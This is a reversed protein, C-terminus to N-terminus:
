IFILLFLAPIMQEAEQAKITCNHSFPKLKYLEVEDIWAKFNMMKGFKQQPSYIIASPRKQQRKARSSAQPQQSVEKTHDQNLSSWCNLPNERDAREGIVRSWDNEKINTQSDKSKMRDRSPPRQFEIAQEVHQQGARNELLQITKTHQEQSKGNFEHINPNEKSEKRQNQNQPSVPTILFRPRHKYALITTCVILTSIALLIVFINDWLTELILNILARVVYSTTKRVCGIWWGRVACKDMDIIDM